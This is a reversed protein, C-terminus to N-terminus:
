KQCTLLPNPYEYQNNLIYPIESSRFIFRDFRVRGEAANKCLLTAKEWLLATEM